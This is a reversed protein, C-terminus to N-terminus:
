GDHRLCATCGQTAAQREGRPAAREPGRARIADRPAPEPLSVPVLVPGTSRLLALKLVSQMERLNVPWPYARLREMAEPSVGQVERGLERNFRCVYHHVLMPPDDGRERLPPLHITLV